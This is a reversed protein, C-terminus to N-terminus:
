TYFLICLRHLYNNKRRAIVTIGQAGLLQNIIMAVANPSGQTALQIIKQQSEDDGRWAAEM